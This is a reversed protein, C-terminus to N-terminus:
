EIFDGNLFATGDVIEVLDGSLAVVRKIYDRNDKGRFM